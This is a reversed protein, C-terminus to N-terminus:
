CNWDDIEYNCVIHNQFQIISYSDLKLVKISSFTCVFMTLDLSSWVLFLQFTSLAANSAEFIVCALRPIYIGEDLETRNRLFSKATECADVRDEDYFEKFEKEIDSRRHRSLTNEVKRQDSQVRKESIAALRSTLFWLKTYFYSIHNDM